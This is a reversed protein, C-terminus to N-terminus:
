EHTYVIINPILDNLREILEEIVQEKLEMNIGGYYIDAKVQEELEEKNEVADVINDLVTTTFNVVTIRNYNYLHIQM